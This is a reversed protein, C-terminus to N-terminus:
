ADTARREAAGPLPCQSEGCLRGSIGWRPYSRERRRIVHTWIALNPSALNRWAISLREHWNNIQADDASEFSAGGIRFVQVFDGWKTRVVHESLHATYPIQRNAWLERRLLAQRKPWLRPSRTQANMPAVSVCDPDPAATWM